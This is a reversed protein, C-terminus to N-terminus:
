ACKGSPTNTCSCDVSPCVQPDVEEKTENYGICHYCNYFNNPDM